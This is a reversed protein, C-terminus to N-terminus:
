PLVSSLSHQPVGLVYVALVDAAVVAVTKSSSIVHLSTATYDLINFDDTLWTKVMTNSFFFPRQGTTECMLHVIFLVFPFLTASVQMSGVLLCPIKLVSNCYILHPGM